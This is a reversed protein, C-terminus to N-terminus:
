FLCCVSQIYKAVPKIEFAYENEMPNQCKCFIGKCAYFKFNQSNCLVRRIIQQIGLYPFIECIMIQFIVKWEDM